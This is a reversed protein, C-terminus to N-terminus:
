LEADARYNTVYTADNLSAPQFGGMIHFFGSKYDTQGSFWTSPNIENISRNGHDSANTSYYQGLNTSNSSPSRLQISPNVRKQAKYGMWGGTDDSSKYMGFAVGKEYYRQCALLNDAYREHVYDTPENGFEVKAGAIEVGGYQPMSESGIQISFTGIQSDPCDLVMYFRKWTTSLYGTSQAVHASSSANGQQATAISNEYFNVVWFGIESGGNANNTWNGTNGTSFLGIALQLRQTNGVYSADFQRAYCSLVIRRNRFKRSDDQELNQNVFSSGYQSGTKKIRLCNRFSENLGSTSGLSAADQVSVEAACDNYNVKWRDSTYGSANSFSGGRQWVEFNGNFIMSPRAIDTTLNYGELTTDTIGFGSVTTPKGTLNSWSQAPVNDLAGTVIDGNADVLNAIDRARTM